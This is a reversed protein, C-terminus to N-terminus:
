NFGQDFDLIQADLEVNAGPNDLRDIAEVQGDMAALRQTDNALAATALGHGRAGDQVHDGFRALDGVAFNKIMAADLIVSMAIQVVHDFQCLQVGISLDDTLDATSLDAHDELLRHTRERRDISCSRMDVFSNAQMM